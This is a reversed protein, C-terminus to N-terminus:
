QNEGWTIRNQWRERYLLERKRKMDEEELSLKTVTMNESVKSERKEIDKIFKDFQFEYNDSM